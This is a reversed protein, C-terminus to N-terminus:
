DELRSSPLIKRYVWLRYEYLSDVSGQERLKQYAELGALHMNAAPSPSPLIKLLTAQEPWQRQFHRAVFKSTCYVERINAEWCPALEKKNWSLISLNADSCNGKKRRITQAIDGIALGELACLQKQQAISEVPQEYIAGLLDWFYNRGSGNYYWGGYDQGNWCPFSGLMLASAEAPLFLPFPHQEIPLAM